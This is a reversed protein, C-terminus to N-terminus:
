RGRRGWASADHGGLALHVRRQGSHLRTRHTIDDVVVAVLRLRLLHVNVELDEKGEAGRGM